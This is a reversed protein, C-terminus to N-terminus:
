GRMAASARRAGSFKYTLAARESFGTLLGQRIIKRTMADGGAGQCAGRANGSEHQAMGTQGHGVSKAHPRTPHLESINPSQHVPHPQTTEHAGGQESPTLLGRAM